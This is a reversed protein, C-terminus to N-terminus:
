AHSQLDASRRHLQYFGELNVWLHSPGLSICPCQSFAWWPVQLCEGGKLLDILWVKASIHPLDEQLDKGCTYLGHHNITPHWIKQKAWNHGQSMKRHKYLACICLFYFAQISTQVLDLLVSQCWDRIRNIELHPTVWGGRSTHPWCPWQSVFRHLHHLQELFASSPQFCVPIELIQHWCLM